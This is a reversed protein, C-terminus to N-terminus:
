LFFNFHSDFVAVHLNMLLTNRKQYHLPEHWISSSSFGPIIVFLRRGFYLGKGVLLFFAMKEKLASILFCNIRLLGSNM